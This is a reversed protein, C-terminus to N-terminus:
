PSVKQSCPSTQSWPSHTPSVVTRTGSITRRGPRTPAPRRMAAVFDFEVEPDREMPSLDFQPFAASGDAKRFDSSIGVHFKSM